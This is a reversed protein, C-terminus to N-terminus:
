HPLLGSRLKLNNRLQSRTKSATEASIIVQNEVASPLEEVIFLTSHKIKASVLMQNRDLPYLGTKRFAAVAHEPYFAVKHLLSMLSPFNLKDVSAFGSKIYYKSLIQKWASKVPGYVGVDLPQLVHSTHPPLCILLINNLVAKDIVEISVHSLHGDFFLVKPGTLNQTNKIFVESFWQIFQNTEM